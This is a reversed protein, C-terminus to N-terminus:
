TQWLKISRQRQHWRRGHRSKQWKVALGQIYSAKDQPLMEADFNEIGVEKAIWAATMQQDGTLM